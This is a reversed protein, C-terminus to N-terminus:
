TTAWCSRTWCLVSSPSTEVFLCVNWGVADIGSVWDHSISGTCSNFNPGAIPRCRGFIAYTTLSEFLGYYGAVTRKTKVGSGGESEGVSM